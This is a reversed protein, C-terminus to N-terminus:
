APANKTVELAWQVEQDLLIQAMDDPTLQQEPPPTRGGQIVLLGTKEDRVILPEDRREAHGHPAALGVRLLEAAVDKVKRRQHVARLKLKKVLEAPLDITTKM